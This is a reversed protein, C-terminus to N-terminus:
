YLYKDVSVWCYEPDHEHCDYGGEEISESKLGIGQPMTITSNVTDALFSSYIKTGAPLKKRIYDNYSSPEDPIVVSNDFNPIGTYYGWAEAKAQAYPISAVSYRTVVEAQNGEGQLFAYAVRAQIYRPEVEPIGLLCVRGTDLAAFAFTDPDTTKFHNEQTPAVYEMSNPPAENNIDAYIIFFKHDGSGPNDPLRRSIYLDVGNLTRLKLKGLNEHDGDLGALDNQSCDVISYNLYKELMNCLREAGEFQNVTTETGDEKLEKSVFPDPLNSFNVANYLARDLNHYANAYIYRIGKDYRAITYVGFASIIGIIAIVLLLEAITFAFKKEM